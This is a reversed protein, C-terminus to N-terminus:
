DRGFDDYEAFIVRAITESTLLILKLDNKKNPESEHESESPTTELKLVM